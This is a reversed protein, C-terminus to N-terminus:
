WNVVRNELTAFKDNEIVAVGKSLLYYYLYTVKAFDNQICAYKPLYAIHLLIRTLVLKLRSISPSIQM